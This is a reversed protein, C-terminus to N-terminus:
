NAVTILLVRATFPRLQVGNADDNLGPSMIMFMLSDLFMHTHRRIHAERNASSDFLFGELFDM